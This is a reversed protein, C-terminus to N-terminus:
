RAEQFRFSSVIEWWVTGELEQLGPQAHFQFLVGHGHIEVVALDGTAKWRFEVRRAPKGDLEIDIVQARREKLEEGATVEYLSNTPDLTVHLAPTIAAYEKWGIRIARGDREGERGTARLEYGAPFRIEYGYKANRYISWGSEDRSTTSRPSACGLWACSLLVSVTLARRM